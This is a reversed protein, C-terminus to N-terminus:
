KAGTSSRWGYRYRSLVEVVHDIPTLGTIPPALESVLIQCEVLEDVFAGAAAADINPDARQLRSAIQDPRAGGKAAELALAVGSAADLSVLRFARVKPEGRLEAEAHHLRDGVRYIGSSPWFRLERRIEPQRELALVLDTLYQM